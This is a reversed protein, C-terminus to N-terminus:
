RAKQDSGIEARIRPLCGPHERQMFRILGERVECRLDWAKPSDAASVLARLEVTRETTGTVQLGCVRGDWKDSLKVLRQLEERVADVPVTYDAHIFVTGLIDATSRTWNEFPHEIFYQLPVILRRQDWIRVVVYTSTIEEIWGWEGEVIVVDELRIPLTMALQVGAILNSITQRAALGVVLGAIGASALLSAGFQRIKPFTMLMTSFAVLAVVIAVTRSLVRVQTHVRRALLNDSVDIRYRSAIVDDVVATARMMLWAVSAIIALSVVHRLSGLTEETLPTAPLVLRIAGVMFVFRAARRTHLVFSSDAVATTKRTLRDAILYVLSHALLAALLAAGVLVIATAWPRYPEPIAQQIADM